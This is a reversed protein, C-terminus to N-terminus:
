IIAHAYNRWDKYGTGYCVELLVLTWIDVGGSKIIKKPFIGYDREM